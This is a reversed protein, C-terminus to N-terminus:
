GVNRKLSSLHSLDSMPRRGALRYAGGEELIDRFMDMKNLPVGAKLSTSVVKVCFVRQDTPLSEGVPHVEAGLAKVLDQERNEKSALKIKGRNHKESKIHLEIISKKLAM